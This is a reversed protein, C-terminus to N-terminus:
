DVSALEKRISANRSSALQYAGVGRTSFLGPSRAFHTILGPLALTLQMPTSFEPKQLLTNAGASAFPQEISAAGEATRTHSPVNTKAVNASPTAALKRPAASNEEGRALRMTALFEADTGGGMPSVQPPPVEPEFLALDSMDSVAGQAIFQAALPSSPTRVVPKFFQPLQSAVAAVQVPAPVAVALQQRAFAAGDQVGAASVVLSAPRSVAQAGLPPEAQMGVNVTM